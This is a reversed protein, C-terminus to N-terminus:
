MQDGATPRFSCMFGEAKMDVTRFNKLKVLTNLVFEARYTSNECAAKNWKQRWKYAATNNKKM